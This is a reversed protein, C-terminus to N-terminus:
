QITTDVDKVWLVMAKELIFDEMAIRAFIAV